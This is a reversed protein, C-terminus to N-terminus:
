LGKPFSYVPQRTVTPCVELTIEEHYTLRINKADGYYQKGNIFIHTTGHFGAIDNKSLQEGWIDFFEGLNYQKSVPSEIHIIGTADHTHLPYFARGTTIFNNRSSRPPIIGIGKPIAIQLGNYILSLHAHIHYILPKHISPTIGDITQGNGGITTDGDSFNEKGISTGQQIQITKSITGKTLKIHIKQAIPATGCGAIFLHTTFLLSVIYYTSRRTADSHLKLSRM